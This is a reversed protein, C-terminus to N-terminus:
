ASGDRGCGERVTLRRTSGEGGGRGVPEDLWEQNQAIREKRQREYPTRKRVVVVGREPTDEESESLDTPSARQKQEQLAEESTPVITAKELAIKTEVAKTTKLRVPTPLTLVLPERVLGGVEKQLM